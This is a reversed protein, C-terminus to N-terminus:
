GLREYRVRLRRFQQLWSITREVIWRKRGLGRGHTTRRKALHAVIGDARRRERYAM